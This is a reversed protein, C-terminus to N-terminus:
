ISLIKHLFKKPTILIYRLRGLGGRYGMLSKDIKCLSQWCGTVIQVLGICNYVYQILYKVYRSSYIYYVTSLKLFRNCNNVLQTFKYRLKFLNQFSQFINTTFKFITSSEPSTKFSDNLAKSLKRSAEANTSFKDCNSGVRFAPSLSAFIRQSSTVIISYGIYIQNLGNCTTVPQKKDTFIAFCSISCFAFM